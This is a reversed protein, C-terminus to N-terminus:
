LWTIAVIVFGALGTFIVDMVSFQGDESLEDFMEVAGELMRMEKSNKSIYRVNNGM